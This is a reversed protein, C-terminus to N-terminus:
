VARRLVAHNAVPASGLIRLPTVCSVRVRTAPWCDAVRLGFVRRIRLRRQDFPFGRVPVVWALLLTVRRATESKTVPCASMWTCARRRLTTGPRARGTRGFQPRCTFAGKFWDLQLRGV